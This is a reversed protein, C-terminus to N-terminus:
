GTGAYESRQRISTSASGLSVRKLTIAPRCAAAVSPWGQVLTCAFILGLMRGKQDVLLVDHSLAEDSRSFVSALLSDGKAKAKLLELAFQAQEL